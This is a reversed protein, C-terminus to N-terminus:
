KPPSRIRVGFHKAPSYVGQISPKSTMVPKDFRLMKRGSSNRLGEALKLIEGARPAPPDERCFM